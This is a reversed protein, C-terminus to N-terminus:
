LKYGFINGYKVDDCTRNKLLGTLEVKVLEPANINKIVGGKAYVLIDM